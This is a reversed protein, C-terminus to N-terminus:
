LSASLKKTIKRIQASANNISEVIKIERAQNLDFVNKTINKIDALEQEIVRLKHTMEVLDDIILVGAMVILRQDGIEGFSSKLNEIYMNFRHALDLLHEEQGEDCAIRYIKGNIKVAVHSM